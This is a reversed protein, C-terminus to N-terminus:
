DCPISTNSSDPAKIAPGAKINLTRGTTNSLIPPSNPRPKATVKKRNSETAAKVDVIERSSTDTDYTISSNLIARFVAVHIMPPIIPVTAIHTEKSKPKISIM